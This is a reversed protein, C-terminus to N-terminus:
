ILFIDTCYMLFTNGHDRHSAPNRLIFPEKNEISRIIDPILRDGSWDGGGIVNGARASAIITTSNKFFSQRYSHTIIEACAKSASYPDDGGLKDDESFSKCNDSNQYVKDSTIILVTKPPNLTKTLANLLNVTGMINTEFTEVPERYSRRVLAQAAMHIVIEPSFENIIKGIHDLDRVDCAHSNLNKWPSLIHHFRMDQDPELSIGTVDAGMAELWLAAWSGKFGTHGTLLVKKNKWFNNTMIGM